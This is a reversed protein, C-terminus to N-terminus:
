QTNNPTAKKIQRHFWHMIVPEYRRVMLVSCPSKEVVQDDVEGFLYDRSTWEDSAGIVLLDYSAVRTTRVIGEPLSDALVVEIKVRPPIYGLEDEVIEELQCRQDEIEEPDSLSPCTRLVHVRAREMQAIEFAMQVALRSHTGGGVPVLINQIHKLEKQRFVAVNTKASILVENVVNTALSQKSLKGPWGMLVLDVKGEIHIEDLVSQALDRTSQIKTYLAVGSKKALQGIKHILNNTQPNNIPLLNANAGNSKDTSVSTGAFVCISADKSREVIISGIRVLGEATVPNAVPVLIRSSRSELYSRNLTKSRRFVRSIFYYLAFLVLVGALFLLARPNSFAIILICAAAALYVTLPYLPVKFPRALNPFRKRLIILSLSGFFLVFLYGASSIFSLFDVLGISAILMSILGVMLIAVFPTRWPSLRSLARPWTGDRSLTFAERTSSLMASNIASLTAIIGAAAMLIIGIGPLFRRIADTLATGSGALEQIPVVGLAIFSVLTYTVMCITLSILIARPITHSPNAVEEADDAIVEFGVYANYTLAITMLMLGLFALPHGEVLIERSALFTEWRFGGPNIFGTIVFVSFSLLLMGGLVIQFNGVLSVGFLNLVTFLTIAGLALPLLPLSPFFIKVSYAFGISSLSVYFASSLCDMSGVLFSLINNGFAERVYTMAGGAEPFTTALECYNLAVSYSLLGGLLIALVTFPGAIAAAHGTLVFIEAGITGGTGLMVVQLLNLQRRLRRKSM